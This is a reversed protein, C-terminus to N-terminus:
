ETLTDRTALRRLEQENQKRFTVNSFTGIYHTDVPM